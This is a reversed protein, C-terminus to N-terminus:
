IYSGTCCLRLNVRMCLGLVTKESVRYDFKPCRLPDQSHERIAPSAVVSKTESARLCRPPRLALWV